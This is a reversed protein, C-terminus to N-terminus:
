ISYVKKGNVELTKCYGVLDRVIATAATYDEQNYVPWMGGTSPYGYIKSAYAHRDEIGLKDFIADNGRAGVNGDNYQFFNNSVTYIIYTDDMMTFKLRDGSNIFPVAKIATGGDFHKSYDDFKMLDYHFHGPFPKKKKKSDGNLKSWLALPLNKMDADTFRCKSIDAILKQTDKKDSPNLSDIRSKLNAKIKDAQEKPIGKGKKGLLNVIFSKAFFEEMKGLDVLMPLLQKPLTVNPFTIIESSLPLKIFEGIKSEPMENLVYQIHQRDGIELLYDFGEDWIVKHLLVRLISANETARFIAKVEEILADPCEDSRGIADEVLTVIEPIHKARKALDLVEECITVYNNKTDRFELNGNSVSGQAWPKGDKHIPFLNGGSCYSWAADYHATCWSTNSGLITAYEPNSVKWIKWPGQNFIIRAGPLGESKLRKAIEKASLEKKAERWKQDFKKVLADAKWDFINKSETFQPSVKLKDFKILTAKINDPLREAKFERCLWDTYSGNPSPDLMNLELVKEETVNHKKALTEKKSNSVTVRIEADM